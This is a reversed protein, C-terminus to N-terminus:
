GRRSWTSSAGRLAARHPRRHRPARGAAGAGANVEVFFPIEGVMPAVYGAHCGLSFYGHEDPPSVAALAIPDRVTQRLLIPVESFTNPVLDCDGRQFAEKDHRSLFWSVHRMGEVEGEIYPRGRLPLM